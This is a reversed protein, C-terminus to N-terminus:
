GAERECAAERVRANRFWVEEGHHQLGISSPRDLGLRSWESELFIRYWGQGYFRARAERHDPESLDAAVVRKGNLWHEVRSGCVLVRAHNWEGAPRSPDAVAPSLGYLAGARYLPGRRGDRHRDNDLVQFELALPHRSLYSWVVAAPSFCLLAALAAALPRRRLLIAAMAAAAALLAAIKRVGGFRGALPLYRIGSNGGPAVRYDVEFEFDRFQRPSFLDTTGLPSAPLAHLVGNELSWGKANEPLRGFLPQWEPATGALLLLLALTM